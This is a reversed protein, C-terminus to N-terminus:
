GRSGHLARVHQQVFQGLGVERLSRQGEASKCILALKQREQLGLIRSWVDWMQLAAVMVGWSVGPGLRGLM